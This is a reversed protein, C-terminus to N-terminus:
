APISEVTEPALKQRVALDRGELRSWGFPATLGDAHAHCLDLLNPDRQPLLDGIVVERAAYRIGITAAAAEPCGVKACRRMSRSYIVYTHNALM